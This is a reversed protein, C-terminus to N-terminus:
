GYYEHFKINQYKKGTETKYLFLHFFFLKIGLAKVLGASTLYHVKISYLSLVFKNMTLQINGLHQRYM